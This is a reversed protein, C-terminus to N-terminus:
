PVREVPRGGLEHERILQLLAPREPDSLYREYERPSLRQRVAEDIQPVVDQWWFAESITILHGINSTFDQAAKMQELATGLPDDKALVGAMVAEWPAM